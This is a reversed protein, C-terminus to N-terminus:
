PACPGCAKFGSAQDGAKVEVSCCSGQARCDGDGYCLRRCRGEICTSRAACPDTTPTRWCVAGEGSIWIGICVGSRPEPGLDCRTLAPCGTNCVPDCGQSEFPPTCDNNGGGADPPLLDDGTDLPVADAAPPLVAVEVEEATDRAPADEPGPSLVEGGGDLYAARSPGGFQCAGVGAVAVVAFM